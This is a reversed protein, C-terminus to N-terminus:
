KNGWDVGKSVEKVLRDFDKFEEISKEYNLPYMLMKSTEMQKKADQDNVFNSLAESIKIALDEGMGKPGYICLNQTWYLDEYGQEVAPIFDPYAEKSDKDVMGIVKLDGSDVYQQAAGSTIASIDINGGMVGTIKDTQSAADVLRLKIDASKQLIEAVLQASGGLQCGFTYTDPNEKAAAVLDDIDNWPSDGKVVFVQGDGGNFMTIPTFDVNPNYEYTGSYYNVYFGTHWMLLTNGDPKSGRVTEYAVLGGGSDQNVVIFNEGTEKQLYSAVIRAFIDTGGGAAAPVIISVTDSPWIENAGSSPLDEAKQQTCGILTTVLVFTLILVMVKKM